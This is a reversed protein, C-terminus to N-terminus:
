TFRLYQFLKKGKEQLQKHIIGWKKSFKYSNWSSTECLGGLVTGIKFFELIWLQENEDTRIEEKTNNMIYNKRGCGEINKKLFDKAM